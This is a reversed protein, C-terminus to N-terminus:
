ALSTLRLAKQEEVVEFEGWAILQGGAKLPVDGTTAWVSGITQGKTLNLLDCVRFGSLPISVALVVPLRSLMPWAANDDVAQAAGSSVASIQPM